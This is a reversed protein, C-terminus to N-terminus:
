EGSLMAAPNKVLLQKVTREDVGHAKLRPVITRLLHGYGYGGYHLLHIKNCVDQSILIRGALGADLLELLLHIRDWDSPEHENSQDFSFESGFTDLEVYAGRKALSRIYDGDVSEDLHSLVVRGLDAGAADLVDLVNHGERKFIPLHVNLALGTQRQARAAARLVKAEDPTMPSSTGIEGIIGARISTEDFGTEIEKVMFDAIQELTANGIWAPHSRAVYFGTGAIIHLGSARALDALQQPFPGINRTTLDVVTRGGLLAFQRLEGCALDCDDLILNDRCHYPDSALIGRLSATVLEDALYQRAPDAPMEFWCALCILLHEHVLSLGLDSTSVPGLVTQVQM